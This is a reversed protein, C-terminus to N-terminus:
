RQMLRKLREALDANPSGLRRVIDEVGEARSLVGQNMASVTSLVSEFSEPALRKRADRFFELGSAHLRSASEAKEEPAASNSATSAAAAAAMAPLGHLDISGTRHVRIYPTPASGGGDSTAARKMGTSVVDGTTTTEAAAM